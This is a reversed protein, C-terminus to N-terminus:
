KELRSRARIPPITRKTASSQADEADEAEAATQYTLSVEVTPSEQHEAIPFSAFLPRVGAVGFRVIM